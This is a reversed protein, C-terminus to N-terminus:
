VKVNKKGKVKLWSVPFVALIALETLLSGRRSMVFEESFSFCSKEYSNVAKKQQERLKFVIYMM